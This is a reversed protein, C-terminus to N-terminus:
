GRRKKQYTIPNAAIAEYINNNIDYVVGDHFMGENDYYYFTENNGLGIIAAGIASTVEIYSHTDESSLAKNIVEVRINQINDDEFTMISVKSGIGVKDGTPETIIKTKALLENIKALRTKIAYINSYVSEDRIVNSNDIEIIKGIYTAKKKVGDETYNFGEKIEDGLVKTTLRLAVASSSKIEKKPDIVDKDVIKFEKIKKNGDILKILSGTMIRREYTEFKSLAKVLRLREEKLLNYQSLTVQTEKCKVNQKVLKRTALRESMPRSIIFDIDNKTKRFIKLVKGTITITDKRGKIKVTYRFSEGEKKGKVSNGLSCNVSVYGNNHNFSTSSLGFENESLTYVEELNEEDFKIKFKTGYDIVTDNVKKVLESEELINHLYKIQEEKYRKDNFTMIEDFYITSNDIENQLENIKDRLAKVQEPILIM